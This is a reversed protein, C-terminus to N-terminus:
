EGGGAIAQAETIKKNRRQPRREWKGDYHMPLKNSPKVSNYVRPATALTADEILQLRKKIENWEPVTYRDTAGEVTHNLLRKIALEPIQLTEAMRGFTRRLDHPSLRGIEADERIYTLLSSADSYHGTKSTPSEAPFVFLRRKGMKKQDASVALYEQRAKLIEQAADTLPLRHSRRNKTKHFYVEGTKIDVWSSVAAEESTLLERWKLDASESKRCGWLLTLLLYDCGTRNAKRRDWLANLFDGLSKENSLPNGVGKEKYEEQLQARSRFVKKLQLIKFPNYKLTPERDQQDAKLVEEDLVHNTATICWRFTQEASTRTKAAIEHFRQEISEFTLDKVPVNEWSSLRKKAARISRLTNETPRKGRVQLGTIYRDFLEGLTLLGAAKIRRAVNPNHRFELAENALERAKDRAAAIGGSTAFDKVSGVKFKLVRNGVRRQVIFSKSKAGVRVGFGIPTDSGADFVIYPKGDPNDIYSLQGSDGIIAKREFKLKSVITDNLVSKRSM